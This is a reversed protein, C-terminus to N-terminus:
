REAIKKVEVMTRNIALEFEEENTFYLSHGDAFRFISGKGLELWKTPQGYLYITRYGSSSSLAAVSSPTTIILDLASMMAVIDDLDNHLDIEGNDFDIINAKFESKATDIEQKCEGYYLNVFSVGRVSLVPGWQALNSHSKMRKATKNSTTWSIGIKPEPGLKSFYTRWYAVREPDAVLCPKVGEMDPRLYGALSGAAVQFDIPPLQQLVTSYKDRDIGIIKIHPFSRTLLSELRPDCLVICLTALAALESFHVSFQLEDGVGQEAYVLINKSKLSEGHWRPITFNNHLTPKLLLRHEYGKWGEDLKGLSLSVFGMNYHANIHRPDLTIAKRFVAYSATLQEQDALVSGLNSYAEAYDPKLAIAKQLCAAAEDLKGQEKFANGLNNLAEAFDPKIIIAKQLCAVATDLKGQEKLINGLNSLANAYGPKITIAKQLCAAAEDLKGQKEFVNGLNNLAEAFDPKITIAKQLCAVAADLKGQEKLINGLNSLANTYDPKIALAKQLYVAAADLKGQSAFIAGINCLALSNEPHAELTHQYQM